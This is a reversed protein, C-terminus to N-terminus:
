LTRFASAGMLVLSELLELSITILLETVPDERLVVMNAEPHWAAHAGQVTNMSELRSDAAKLM